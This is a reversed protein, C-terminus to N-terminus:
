YTSIVNEQPLHQAMFFANLGLLKFEKENSNSCQM